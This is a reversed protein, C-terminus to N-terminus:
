FNLRSGLHEIEFIFTRNYVNLALNMYTPRSMDIDTMVSTTQGKYNYNYQHSISPSLPWNANPPGPRQRGGELTFQIQGKKLM